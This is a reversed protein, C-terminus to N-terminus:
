GPTPWPPGGAAPIAANLAAATARRSRHSYATRATTETPMARNAANCLLYPEATRLATSAAM